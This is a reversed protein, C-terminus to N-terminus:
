VMMMTIIINNNIIMIENTTILVMMEDTGDNSWHNDEKSFRQFGNFLMSVMSVLTIVLKLAAFVM